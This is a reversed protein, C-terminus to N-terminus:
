RSRGAARPPPAASRPPTAAGAGGATKVLADMVDATMALHEKGGPAWLPPPESPVLEPFLPTEADRYFTESLIRNPEAFREMLAKCEDYALLDGSRVYAPNRRMVAYFFKDRDFDLDLHNVARILELLERRPSPNQWVPKGRNLDTKADLGLLGAFDKVIDITRGSREHPRVTLAEAGFAAAWASLVSLYDGRDRHSELWSRFDAKRGSAVAQKYLSQLYKDQRRLYAVIRTEGVGELQAQIADPAAFWMAESSIVNIEAKSEALEARVEDWVSMQAGKYGRVAWALAHHARGAGQGARLYHVNKAALLEPHRYLFTQLASTGTKHTGIHLVLL